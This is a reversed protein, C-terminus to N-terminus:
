GVTAPTCGANLFREIPRGNHMVTDAVVALGQAQLRCLHARAARTTIGLAEAVDISSLPDGHLLALVAERSARRQFAAAARPEKLPTVRRTPTQPPREPAPALGLLQLLM